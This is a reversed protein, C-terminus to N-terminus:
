DKIAEKQYTAKVVLRHTFQQRRADWDGGCTILQINATKSPGFIERSRAEADYVKKSVVKYYQTSKATHVRIADGASLQNLRNFVASKRQYTVHGAFVANGFAGPLYGTRLWGIDTANKPADMEGAIVSVKQVRAKVKLKPITVELPVDPQLSMLPLLKPTPVARPLSQNKSEHHDSSRVAFPNLTYNAGLGVGVLGIVGVIVIGKRTITQM